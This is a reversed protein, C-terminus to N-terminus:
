QQPWLDVILSTYVTPQAPTNRVDYRMSRRIMGDAADWDVAHFQGHEDFYELLHM